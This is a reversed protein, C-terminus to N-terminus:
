NKMDSSFIYKAKIDTIAPFGYVSEHKNSFIEVISNKIRDACCDDRNTIVISGICKEEQLDVEIWQSEKTAYLTHGLQWNKNSNKSSTHQKIVNDPSFLQKDKTDGYISSSTATTAPTILSVGNTDFINIDVINMPVNNGAPLTIRVYRGQMKCGFFAKYIIYALIMIAFIIAVKKWTEEVM